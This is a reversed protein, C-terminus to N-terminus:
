ELDIFLELTKFVRLDRSCDSARSFVGGPHCGSSCNASSNGSHGRGLMEGVTAASLQYNLCPNPFSGGAHETHAKGNCLPQFSPHRALQVEDLLQRSGWFLDVLFFVNVFIMLFGSCELELLAVWPDQHVHSRSNRM